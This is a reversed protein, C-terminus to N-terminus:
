QAKKKADAKKAQVHAATDGDTGCNPDNSGCCPDNSGCCPDDSGCCPDDSDCCPDDPACGPQSEPPSPPTATNIPIYGGDANYQLGSYPPWEEGIESSSFFAQLPVFPIEVGELALGLFDWGSLQKEIAFKLATEFFGGEAQSDLADAAFEKVHDYFVKDLVIGKGIDFAIDSDSQYESEISNRSNMPAPM